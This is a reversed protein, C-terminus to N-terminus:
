NEYQLLGFMQKMNKKEGNCMHNQLSRDYGKLQIKETSFFGRRSPQEKDVVELGERTRHYGNQPM